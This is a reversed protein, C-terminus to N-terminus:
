TAAEAGAGRPGGTTAVRSQRQRWNATVAIVLSVSGAMATVVLVAWLRSGAYYAVWLASVVTALAWSGTSVGIVDSTRLLRALQPLRTITGAGGAGVVAGAWGWVLGPAVCCVLAVGVVRPAVWSRAGSRVRWWIMSQLPLALASSTALPWSRVALGYVVWFVGLTAFLTWTSLSVGQTGRRRVRTYQAFASWTGLTAAVWGLTATVGVGIM